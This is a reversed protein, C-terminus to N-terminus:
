QAPVANQTEANDLWDRFSQHQLLQRALQAYGEQLPHSADAYLASPLAPPAYYPIGRAELWAEMEGKLEDYALASEETMLHTNIPGLLVFVSNGRRQLIDVSDRFFRWQYSKDLPVWSFDQQEIGGDFWPVPAGQPADDPPRLELTIPELPNRAPNELSWSQIGFNEYYAIRMHRLWSFYPIRRELSIGAVDAFKPRYGYPRSFLQPVLRAHNLSIGEDEPAQGLLVGKLRSLPPADPPAGEPRSLDADPSSLWLPNLHLLVSQDSIDRGYHKILGTLAVQRTGDLGLNAFLDTGAEQNLFHPLTGRPEVYHGWMVSDGIVVGPYRARAHRAYRAYLWYDESYPYPIRYDASPEFPEMRQAASPLLVLTVIVVVIATRWDRASLRVANSSFAESVDTTSTASSPTAKAVKDSM